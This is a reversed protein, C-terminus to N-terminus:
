LANSNIMVCDFEIIELTSKNRSVPFIGTPIFGSDKFISLMEVYNPMDDYIGQVPLEAQLSTISPAQKNLGSFVELDYGQTDLKLHISRRIHQPPLGSIFVDLTSIEVSESNKITSEAPFQDIGFQNFDRFSSFSSSTSVNITSTGQERGLAYNYTKWLEDEYSKETLLKYSKGVPEFSYIESDYGLSRLMTGYEGINAGVDIVTDINHRALLNRLHRHLLIDKSQRIVDYGFLSGINRLLNM